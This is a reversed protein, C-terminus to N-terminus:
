NNSVTQRLEKKSRYYNFAPSIDKDGKTHQNRRMIELLLSAKYFLLPFVYLSLLEILFTIKKIGLNTMKKPEANVSLPEESM